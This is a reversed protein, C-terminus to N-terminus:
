STQTMRQLVVEAPDVPAAVDLQVPLALAQHLRQRYVRRPIEVAGLSRLHPTVFQTDFLGFGSQRLRDILFTLAVKSGDTDRSFMSEGFFAGGLAVGYVGGVLRDDSWVELSHAYGMQHLRAYLDFIVDNIWTEPRDACARVTDEFCGNLTVRFGARRIRRALSRSVHFRDLDFIGRQQPDVWFVEPDDASEAMPFVGMEYAHLLLQPTLIQPEMRTQDFSPKGM